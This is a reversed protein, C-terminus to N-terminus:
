NTMKARFDNMTKILYVNKIMNKIMDNNLFFSMITM